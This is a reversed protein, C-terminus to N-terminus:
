HQLVGYRSGLYSAAAARGADIFAPDGDGAALFARSYLADAAILAVEVDRVLLELSDDGFAFRERLALAVITAIRMSGPMAEAAREVDLVDGLRLSRYAPVTRYSVLMESLAADICGTSDSISESSVAAQVSEALQDQLRASLGQLVVIRDPFYRYVTGISAGAREAVMATTLREYGVEDIIAAAADLLAGLRATSRAQVPDNRLLASRGHGAVAGQYESM